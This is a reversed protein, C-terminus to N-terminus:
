SVAGYYELMRELEERIEQDLNHAGPCIRLYLYHSRLLPKLETPDQVLACYFIGDERRVIKGTFIEKQFQQMQYSNEDLLFQVEVLVPSVDGSTIGPASLYTHSLKERAIKEYAEIPKPFNDKLVKYERINKLRVRMVQHTEIGVCILYWRGMRPDLQVALPAAQMKNERLTFSVLCHDRCAQSLRCVMEEDFIGRCCNERFLFAEKPVKKGQYFFERVISRRLFEGPTRPFGSCAYLSALYYLAILEGHNLGALPDPAPCCSRGERVIYGLKELRSLRRPVLSRLDKESSSALELRTILEGQTLPTPSSCLYDLLMLSVGDNEASHLFYSATLWPSRNSFYDRKIYYYRHKGNGRPCLVGEPLVGILSGLAKDYTNQNLIGLNHFDERNYFGYTSILELLTRVSNYNRIARAM